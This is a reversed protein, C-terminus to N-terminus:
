FKLQVGVLVQLTSPYYSLSANIGPTLGNVNISEPDGTTWKTFTYLNRGTVYLRGSNVYKIPSKFNYSLTVNDIKVFDGQELFYDSLSSYTEPNTLAAYKGGAYTSALVNAGGQTVPTGIYFATTNFLQYGFAGRLYISLDINKYTITNGLSATFKPLGNGVYQKDNVSAQNGPIIKGDKSYVLLRGTADIGASRLMYFSGIRRGEELRQATGPSGPAPMGVLDTFKQGQYTDNSFSVFENNNTAGAFSLSYGFNKRSIVNGNLQIEFGSNKMTGVNAFTTSQVNPPVPVNYSGLLDKNTRIYYNLSGTLKNRLLDFDLGVNFNQAKEWRLDYNTNQSPGWVQYSTGNYTYYGFGQYTDLSLYSGFDQNGTEGYDARLKLDNLWSIEPFFNERSIGWGVSAAPFYGWKNEYGFKSSGERRLSASFYYKNAFDYNLRGFFAILKSDNKYSGVGRFTFDGSSGNTPLPLNYVGTGLSNYTLVDSPFNSNSGNLGSYNFYYYSYGGLLKFSHNKVDLSYNGIWEFSKQDSKDYNRSASNRGANGNIAGTNYSPTFGFGFFDSTQQGLTAQTYLNRLINLRFSANWDLYKGETGSLITNLEEVPNYAGALGVNIYNYKTPDSTDMVPLTPNLTLSQSIANWSANNSKLYRPAITVGVTYLNNASTHNLNLRAGYEQKTSRLDLGKANRYDLSLIYNTKVNGGSFQLTQKQNFAYDRTVAKFWDTNGGYDTGRNHALFEERSLVEIQNTPMDFSVYGDYFAQPQNTGKKTTILVVGNSGRTGYIASAAGGKLVDISEIDNQNLNDINGGPVGNIVYLPGLGANRSSVGRLQISPTANPDAPSTNTVSLGAVKGQISNLANNGGFPLLDRASLHTIASTVERKNLTGYGVAVVTVAGLSTSSSQLSVAIVGSGVPVEQAEYSVSSIVLTQTSAPVSLSFTGAASTTTGSKSGKALVSANAVPAGSSDTVTGTVTRTQAFLAIPLVLFLVPLLWRFSRLKRCLM